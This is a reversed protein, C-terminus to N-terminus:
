RAESHEEKLHLTMAEAASDDFVVWVHTATRVDWELVGYGHQTYECGDISCYWTGPIQWGCTRCRNPDHADRRRQAKGQGCSLKHGSHPCSRCESCHWARPERCTPCREEIRM